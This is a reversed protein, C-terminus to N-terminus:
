LLEATILLFDEPGKGEEFLPLGCSPGLVEKALLHVSADKGDFGPGIKFLLEPTLEKGDIHLCISDISQFSRQVILSVLCYIIVQVTEQDQGRVSSVRIGPSYSFGECM